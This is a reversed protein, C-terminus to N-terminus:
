AASCAFQAVFCLVFMLAGYAGRSCRLGAACHWIYQPQSEDIYGAYFNTISGAATAGSGIYLYNAAAVINASGTTPVTATASNDLVGNRYIKLVSGATSSYTATVLWHVWQNTDVQISGTQAKVNATVNDFSFRFYDAHRVLAHAFMTLM